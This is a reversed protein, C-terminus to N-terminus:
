RATLAGRAIALELRAGDSQQMRSLYARYGTRAAAVDGALEAARAVGFLSRPRGPERRLTAEYAARASPYRGVALLLDGELERAPLLEGPTVPHKETVDELDAAAKAERLAGATDGAALLSWAAVAQQKIGVIRSWNYGPQGALATQIAGLATVEVRAEAADNSRAAGIGRAFHALAEGIGGQGAARVPLHAAAAWDGRELPVRAEMAVRNYNTVLDSALVATLALGQAVTRRAASDRGEQLYGYVMYDLAHFQESAVSRGQARAYEIGADLSRQNAAITEDWLGLRVFIHSPM